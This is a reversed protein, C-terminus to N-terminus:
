IYPRYYISKKIHNKRSTLIWGINGFTTYMFKPMFLKSMNTITDESIKRNNIIDEAVIDLGNTIKKVMNGMDKLNRGDIAGGAGIGIGGLWELDSSECFIKCINLAVNNHSSEPFGSNILAVFKPRNTFPKNNRIIKTIEMMKIVPAPLCDVYLPSALIIVSSNNISYVMENISEQSKLATLVHIKESNFKNQVLRDLLYQGLSESTSYKIKPSGILLLAKDIYNM